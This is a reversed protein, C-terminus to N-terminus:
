SAALGDRVGKLEETTMMLLKARGRSKQTLQNMAFQVESATIGELTLDATMELLKRRKAKTDSALAADLADLLREKQSIIPKSKAAREQDKKAKMAPDKMEAVVKKFADRQNPTLSGFRLYQSKISRLFSSEVYFEHPIKFFREM